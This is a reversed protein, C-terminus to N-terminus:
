SSVKPLWLKYTTENRAGQRYFIDRASGPSPEAWLAHLVRTNGTALVVQGITEAGSALTLAESWCGDEASRQCVLLDDGEDWAVHVQGAAEVAIAPQESRAVSASINTPASWWYNDDLNDVYLIDSNGSAHEQQWVLYAGRTPDGALRPALSDALPSDSVLTVQGYWQTGDGWVAYIDHYGSLELAQWCVWVKDNKGVVIDPASGDRAGEVRYTSWYGNTKWGFYIRNYGETTDTWVVIRMGDSKVAIAPQSSSGTTSSVNEPPSWGSGAWRSYYIDLKGAFENSFVLHVSGDPGIALDPEEGGFFAVPTSWGGASGRSYYLIDTGAYVESWVAYITGDPAVVLAGDSSDTPTASVNSVSGWQWSTLRTSLPMTAGPLTSRSEPFPSVAGAPKIIAPFYWREVIVPSPAITEVTTPTASPSATATPDELTPAKTSTFTVTPTATSTPTHTATATQTPTSTPTSTATPTLTSTATLSPSVTPTATRPLDRRSWALDWRGDDQKASWVAYLAGDTAAALCVDRIGPANHAVQEALGWEEGPRRIRGELAAGADWAVYLSGDAAQLLSPRTAGGSSLKFPTSWGGLRGEALYCSRQGDSSEQEWALRVQGDPGAVITPSRADDTESQSVKEPTSWALGDWRSVLIDSRMDTLSGTDAQWAVWVHNDAGIALAPAFGTAGPIPLMPTWTLGADSSCAHYIRNARDLREAWVIHITGSVIVSIDPETSPGSTGSVMHPLGWGGQERQVHFVQLQSTGLSLSVYVLHPVGNPDLAMAPSDGIFVTPDLTWANGDRLAYRVQGEEEWALHM